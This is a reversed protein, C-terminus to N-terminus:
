DGANFLRQARFVAAFTGLNKLNYLGNPRAGSAPEVVNVNGSSAGLAVNQVVANAGKFATFVYTYSLDVGLLFGPSPQWQTRLGGQFFGWDPDCHSNLTGAGFNLGPLNSAAGGAGGVGTNGNNFAGQSGCTIVGTTNFNATGCVASSLMSKATADYEVRTYGGTLSTKLTPTWYHEYGAMVTWTTTLEISSANCTIGSAGISPL